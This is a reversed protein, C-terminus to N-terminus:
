CAPPIRALVGAWMLQAWRAYGADSPHYRDSALLEPHGPVEQQTPTYMDVIQVGYQRGLRALIENFAIAQRGVAVKQEPTFRPAVAMDPLLNMVTVARTDHHLALFIAGMSREYEQADFGGTIDNPGVSITVLQPLLAVARPLQDRVVDISTAGSVGLNTLAAHRYHTRLQADLRNVYNKEPSSAGVGYVTSDGMAVYSVAAGCEAPLTRAAVREPPLAPTATGTPPATTAQTSGCGAVGACLIGLLVTALVRGSQFRVM